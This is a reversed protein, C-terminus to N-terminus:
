ARSTQVHLFFHMKSLTERLVTRAQTEPYQSVKNQRTEKAPPCRARAAQCRPPPLPCVGHGCTHPQQKRETRPKACRRSRQM